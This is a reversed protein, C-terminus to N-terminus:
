NNQASVKVRVRLKGESDTQSGIDVSQIHPNSPVAGEKYPVDGGYIGIDKGNFGAGKAPSNPTLHYDDEYSFTTEIVRNLINETPINFKNERSLNTSESLDYDLTFINNYIENDVVGPLRIDTSYIFINNIIRSSTVTELPRGWSFFNCFIINNKIESNSLNSLVRGNDGLICNTITMNSGSVGGVSSDKILINGQFSSISGVYIRKFILGNIESNEDSDRTYITGDFYIGEVTSNSSGQEFYVGSGRVVTRGTALTSDPYHGAGIIHLEKNININNSKLIFIGDSLYIYAGPPAAIVASDLSTHVSANNGDQVIIVNQAKSLVVGFLLILIVNLRKM